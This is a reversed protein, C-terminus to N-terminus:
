NRMVRDPEITAARWVPVITVTTYPVVVLLFLVAVHYADIFPTLRFRPYLVSWGKMVPEFLAASTFFVHIYALLIGLPFSSLSVVAGEWFKMLLIDSTEWGVAKLIGIEQREEASLGTAKDWALIAFAIMAGSLIVLLVGARWDFVADYTNLMESRRIVRTDPLMELIKATVTPVERGNPVKVSLDTAYEDALGFLSRFDPESILVLDSSMLSSELALVGKVRLDMSKGDSSYFTVPDGKVLGAVRSVGEGVAIHREEMRFDPPVMLTYDAEAVPDHYYGWLRRSVSNVGRIRSIKEAYRVPILDHRGAILRQVVLEPAGELIVSAERKMAEAFFMVSALCFVILVYVVCLSLHRACRRLLSSLTFDLINRQKEIWERMREVRSRVRAM